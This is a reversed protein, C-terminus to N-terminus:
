GAAVVAHELALEAAVVVLRRALRADRALVQQRQELRAQVVDDDAEAEGGRTALGALHDAVTVPRDVAPADVDGAVLHTLAVDDGDLRPGAGRGDDAVGGQRRRSVVFFWSRGTSSKWIGRMVLSDTSSCRPENTM